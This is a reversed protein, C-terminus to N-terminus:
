TKEDTEHVPPSYITSFVLRQEASRNVVEHYTAAHVVIFDGVYLFLQRYLVEPRDAHYIIIVAEGEEVRIFQTQTRHIERPVRGGPSVVEFALQMREDTYILTLPADYVTEFAVSSKLIIPEDRMNAENQPVGRVVPTAYAAYCVDSCFPTERRRGLSTMANCNVCRTQYM